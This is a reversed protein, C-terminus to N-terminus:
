KGCLNEYLDSSPDPQCASEVCHSAEACREGPNGCGEGFGRTVSCIGVCDKAPNGTDDCLCDLGQQCDGSQTCTEGLGLRPACTPPDAAADCKAEPACVNPAGSLLTEACREGAIPLARCEWTDKSCYADNKCWIYNGTEVDAGCKKGTEPVPICRTGLQFCYLGKACSRSETCEADEPLKRACIGVGVTDGVKCYLGPGCADKAVECAADLDLVAFSRAAPETCQFTSAQCKLGAECAATQTGDAAACIQDKGLRPLCEGCRDGMGASCALTECQAPGICPEGVKRAGPEYCDPIRNLYVDECSRQRLVFACKWASKADLAAGASFLVDPCHATLSECDPTDIGCERKRECTARQFRVCAETDSLGEPISADEWGAVQSLDISNAEASSLNGNRKASPSDNSCGTGAMVCSAVALAVPAGLNLVRIRPSTRSPMPSTERLLRLTSVASGGARVGAFDRGKTGVSSQLRFATSARCNM